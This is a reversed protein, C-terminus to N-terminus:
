KWAVAVSIVQVILQLPQLAESVILAMAVAAAVAVIFRALKMHHDPPGRLRHPLPQALRGSLRAHMRYRMSDLLKVPRDKGFGESPLERGLPIRTVFRDGFKALLRIEPTGPLDCLYPQQRRADGRPQHEAGRALPIAHWGL